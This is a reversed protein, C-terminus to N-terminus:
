ALSRTPTDKCREGELERHNGNGNGSSISFHWGHCAPCHWWIGVTEGEHEMTHTEGMQVAVNKYPCWHIKM